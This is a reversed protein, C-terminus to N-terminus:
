YQGTVVLEQKVSEIMEETPASVLVIHASWGAFQERARKEAGWQTTYERSEPKGTSPIEADPIAVWYVFYKTIM